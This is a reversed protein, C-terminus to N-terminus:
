PKGHFLGVPAANDHIGNNRVIHWSNGIPQNSM